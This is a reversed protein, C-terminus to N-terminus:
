VILNLVKQHMEPDNCFSGHSRNKFTTIACNYNKSKLYQECEIASYLEDNEAFIVNITNEKEYKTVGMLVDTMTLCKAYYHTYIDRYILVCSIIKAKNHKVCHILKNIDIDSHLLNYVSFLSPLFIIPEILITNTLKVNHAKLKPVYNNIICSVINGGFSHSILQLSKIKKDIVFNVISESIERITPPVFMRNGFSIGPVEPIIINHTQPLKKIFERQVFLGGSVAHFFVIASINLNNVNSSPRFWIILGNELTIKNFGHYFMTMDSFSVIAEFAFILPLPKYWVKIHNYNVIAESNELNQLKINSESEYKDIIHEVPNSKKINKDFPFYIKHLLTNYVDSKSISRTRGNFAIDITNTVNQIHNVFDDRIVNACLKIKKKEKKNKQIKKKVIKTHQISQGLYNIGELILYISLIVVFNNLKSM